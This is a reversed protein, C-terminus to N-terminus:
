EDSDFVPSHAPNTISTARNSTAEVGYTSPSGNLSMGTRNGNADYSIGWSAANTTISTLRSNEDYGFAQDLAPQATGDVSLHTFSVIRSAEDYRVDRLAEGLPYRVARGALDFYRENSKVGSAMAWGWRKVTGAFPTWEIQTILPTGGLTIETVEGDV